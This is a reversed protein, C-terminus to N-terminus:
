LIQYLMFFRLLFREAVMIFCDEVNTQYKLFPVQLM